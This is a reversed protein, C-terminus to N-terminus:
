EKSLKEIINKYSPFKLLLSKKTALEFNKFDFGPIVTCGV